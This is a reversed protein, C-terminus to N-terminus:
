LKYLCENLYIQPYLKENEQFVSRVIITLTPFKLPKNLPLDDDTYVKIKSYYKEYFLEKGANIRKIGSRIGSWSEEYKNASDLILYKNGDKETFNGRASHIILYLPNGNHINEYDEIKKITNYGIYDIDIHKYNKKDVKLSKKM